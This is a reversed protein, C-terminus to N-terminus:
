MTLSSKLHSVKLYDKALVMIASKLPKIKNKITQKDKIVRSWLSYAKVKIAHLYLNYTYTHM